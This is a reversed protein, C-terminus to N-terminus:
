YAEKPEETGTTALRPFVETVFRDRVEKARVPDNRVPVAIGMVLCAKENWAPYAAWAAEYEERALVTATKAHVSDIDLIDVRAPTGKPTFPSWSFAIPPNHQLEVEFADIFPQAWAEFAKNCAGQVRNDDVHTVFGGFIAHHAKGYRYGVLSKLTLFRVRTWHEGDPMPIVVSRQKDEKKAIAGVKLQELAASHIDGGDGGQAAKGDDKPPPAPNVPKSPPPTAAQATSCAACFLGLLGLWRRMRGETNSPDRALDV